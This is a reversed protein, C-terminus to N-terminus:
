FAHLDFESTLDRSDSAASIQQTSALPHRLSFSGIGRSVIEIGSLEVGTCSAAAIKSEVM